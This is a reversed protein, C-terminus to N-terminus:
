AFRRKSPLYVRVAEAAEAPHGGSPSPSFISHGVPRMVQTMRVEATIRGGPFSRTAAAIPGTLDPM